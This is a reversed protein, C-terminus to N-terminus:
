FLGMLCILVALATIETIQQLAGIVDGSQGGIKQWAMWGVILAAGISTIALLCVAYLDPIFYYIVSLGILWSILALIIPPRGFHQALGGSQAFPLSAMMLPLAGRSLVVAVIIYNFDVAHTIISAILIVRVLVSFVIALTGFTGNASDHMIEIRRERNTIAFFGDCCDALGDEHMAGTLCIMSVVILAAIILPPLGAYQAVIGVGVAIVAVLLGVIPFYLVCLSYKRDNAPAKKNADRFALDGLAFLPIRTLFSLAIILQNPHIARLM